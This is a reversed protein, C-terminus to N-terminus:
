AWSPMPDGALPGRHIPQGSVSSRTEPAEPQPAERSLEDIRQQVQDLGRQTARMNRPVDAFGLVTSYLDLAQRYAEASRTLYEQEAALGSLARAARALTEGRSRYGDALQATERDGAAYGLRQAQKLADAGRDVDELGYIFTRMLGLFPDPWNPRLEAAERFATVAETFERQGEIILKRAKRAEGNIRHLHGECYRLAGKLQGDGPSAALARALAERALKWQTERVSPLPTRYNGIVRDALMATQNTLARELGAVGIRLSRAKLADYQDWLQGVSELEATPVQSELRGARRSIWLEKGIMWLAMLLLAARLFRRSRSARPPAPKGDTRASAALSAAPQAGAESRSTRRTAEEDESNAPRTRRTAPEEQTRTLWGEREAQTARGAEFSELDDRIARANDYRDAPTPALLKVVIARLGDPCRADLPAAPRLSRILQELRRTDAARFPQVGAAMEYLLVGIAWFDSHADMDGSDLREPSLYAISGFDNRTVKRSLSLAKAIGFDLVKVQGGDLIRINRPKLDGHLLSRLPRGEITTEFAHAAELFHCLEIGIRVAQQPALPGGTIVESLNRGEIYEMAIYFYQGDTGYEYVAPVHTSLRCFQEQLKAGWREADLIDHAERDTGTPVLKLAVQRHTRSDNALFVSAMGGRGIERVIEYPGIRLFVTSMM